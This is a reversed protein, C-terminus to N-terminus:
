FSLSVSSGFAGSLPDTYPLVALQFHKSGFGDWSFEPLGLWSKLPKLLWAGARASFIGIGAGALVDGLWHRNGYIRDACVYFSMAYAGAGWLNGYDMRVLEAGTFALTAHGSPFSLDDRGDPRQSHLLHKPVRSLCLAILHAVSAEVLRDMFPVRAKCGALGLSLHMAEPVYQVYSGIDHFSRGNRIDSQVFDRLPVEIAHHALYHSAIGAGTVVAPTVWRLTDSAYQARLPVAALIFAVALCFGRMLDPLKLGARVSVASRDKM